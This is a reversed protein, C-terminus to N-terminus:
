CVQSWKYSVLTRCNSLGCSGHVKFYDQIQRVDWNMLLDLIWGSVFEMYSPINCDSGLQDAEGEEDGNEM